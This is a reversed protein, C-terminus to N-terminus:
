FGRITRGDRLRVTAVRYSEPAPSVDDKLRSTIETVTMRRGIDSLDPGVSKGRGRVTHCTACQGKGFFFQEGPTTDINPPYNDYAAANMSRIMAALAALESEPLAFAPMGGPTGNKITSQIDAASRTRLRRSRALEPGRDTGAADAGHCLACQQTFVQEATKQAQAVALPLLAAVALSRYRISMAGRRDRSPLQNMRLM